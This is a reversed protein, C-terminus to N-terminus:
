KVAEIQKVSDEVLALAANEDLRSMILDRAAKTALSATKARLESVLTAELAKIKAEAQLERRAMNEEAKQATNESIRIATAQATSIITKAEEEAQKKLYKSAELEAKAEERLRKAEDLDARIKDARTDLMERLASNAKKWVLIVFIVFGLAVWTSENLYM